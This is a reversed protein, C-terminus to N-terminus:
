VAVRMAESTLSWSFSFRRMKTRTTAVATLFHLLSVVPLLPASLSDLQFFQRGFVTPFITWESPGITEPYYFGLCALLSCALTIGTFALCWRYGLSPNRVRSVSVAGIVPVLVALELWPPPFLNM